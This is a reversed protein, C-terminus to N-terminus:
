WKVGYMKVLVFWEGGPTEYAEAFRVNVFQNNMHDILAGIDKSAQLLGAPSTDDPQYSVFFTFTNEAGYKQLLEKEGPFHMQLSEFNCFKSFVHEDQTDVSLGLPSLADCLFQADATYQKLEASNQDIVEVMAIPSTGMQARISRGDVPGGKKSLDGLQIKPFVRQAVLAKVEGGPKVGDEGHVQVVQYSGFSVHMKYFKEMNGSVDTDTGMAMESRMSCGPVVMASAITSVHSPLLARMTVDVANDVRIDEAFKGVDKVNDTLKQDAPTLTGRHYINFPTAFKGMRVYGTGEVINTHIHGDPRTVSLTCTCHGSLGEEVAAPAESQTSGGFAAPAETRAAPAETRTFPVNRPPQAHQHCGGIVGLGTTQPPQVQFCGKTSGTDNTQSASGTVFYGIRCDVNEHIVEGALLICRQEKKSLNGLKMDRLVEEDRKRQKVGVASSADTSGHFYAASVSNSCVRLTKLTNRTNTASSECDDAM